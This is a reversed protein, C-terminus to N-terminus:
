KSIEKLMSQMQPLVHKIWTEDAMEKLDSNSFIKKTIEFYEKYEILFWTAAIQEPLNSPSSDERKGSIVSILQMYKSYRKEKLERNRTDLWKIFAFLGAFTVTLVSLFQSNESIFDLM